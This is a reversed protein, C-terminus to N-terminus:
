RSIHGVSSLSRWAPLLGAILEEYGVVWCRPGSGNHIGPSTGGGVGRERADSLVPSQQLLPRLQQVAITPTLPKRVSSSTTRAIEGQGHVAATSSDFAAAAVRLLGSSNGRRRARALLQLGTLDGQPVFEIYALEGSYGEIIICSVPQEQQSQQHLQAHQQNPAQSRLSKMCINLSNNSSNSSVCVSLHQPRSISPPSAFTSAGAINAVAESNNGCGVSTSSLHMDYTFPSVQPSCCGDLAENPSWKSNGQLNGEKCQEAAATKWQQPASQAAAATEAALSKVKQQPPPSSLPLLSDQSAAREGGGASAVTSSSQQRDAEDQASPLLKVSSHDKESMKSSRSVTLVTHTSPTHTLVASSGSLSSATM